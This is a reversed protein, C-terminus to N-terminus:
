QYRAVTVARSSDQFLVFVAELIDENSMKFGYIM